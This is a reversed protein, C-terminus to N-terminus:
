AEMENCLTVSKSDRKHQVYIHLPRGALAERIGWSNESRIRWGWRFYMHQFRQFKNTRLWLLNLLGKYLILKSAHPLFECIRFYPSVLGVYSFNRQVFSILFYFFRGSLEGCFGVGWCTFICLMYSVACRSEETRAYYRNWVCKTKANSLFTASPGLLPLKELRNPHLLSARLLAIVVFSSIFLFVGTM